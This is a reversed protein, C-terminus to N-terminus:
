TRTPIDATYLGYITPGLGSSQPVAAGTSWELLKHTNYPLM